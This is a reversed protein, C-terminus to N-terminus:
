IHILSLGLRFWARKVDEDKLHLYERAMVENGREGLETIVKAKGYATLFIEGQVRNQILFYDNRTLSVVVPHLLALQNVAHSLRNISHVIEATRRRKADREELAEQKHKNSLGSLLSESQPYPTSARRRRGHEPQPSENRDHRSRGHNLHVPDDKIPSLEHLRWNPSHPTGQGHIFDEDNGWDDYAPKQQQDHYPEIDLNITESHPSNRRKAIATENNSAHDHLMENDRPAVVLGQSPEQPFAAHEQHGDDISIPGRPTIVLGGWDKRLRGMQLGEHEGTDEESAVRPSPRPSEMELRPPSPGVDGGTKRSQQATRLQRRTQVGAPTSPHPTRKVVTGEDNQLSEKKRRTSKRKKKPKPVDADSKVEGGSDVGVDQKLAAFLDPFNNEKYAQRNDQKDQSRDRLYFETHKMPGRGAHQEPSIGSGKAKRQRTQQQQQVPAVPLSFRVSARPSQPLSLSAQQEAPSELM